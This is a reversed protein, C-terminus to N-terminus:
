QAQVGVGGAVPKQSASHEGATGGNTPQGTDGRQVRDLGVEMVDDADGEGVAGHEVAEGARGHEVM